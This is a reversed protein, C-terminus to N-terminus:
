KALKWALLLAILCCGATIAYVALVVQRVSLGRQQLRHHIHTKDAETPGKKLYIRRAVVYLGDFVPVGLVLLAVVLSITAQVKLTGVIALMALIYGLVFAGATGMFISAPNYNYRLFGLAAGGLAAAMLAVAVEGRAAAMLGMTMASISCVGSALGDMGDLFDFTKAVLFVWIMTVPISFWLPLRIWNDSTYGVGNPALHVLPNTIGEVRAGLLAAVLGAALLAATQAKPPLDYKDDLLGVIAVLAAGLLIGLIPHEGKGVAVVMNQGTWLRVLLMTVIFGVFMALGGWLPTAKKHVDRDRPERVVGYREALRKVLPVCAVTVLGSVFAAVLMKIQLDNM